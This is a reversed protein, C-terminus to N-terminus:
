RPVTCISFLGYCNEPVSRLVPFFLNQYVKRSKLGCCVSVAMADAALSISVALASIIDM